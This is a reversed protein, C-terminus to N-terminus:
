NDQNQPSRPLTTRAHPRQSETRALSRRRARATSPSPAIAGRSCGTRARPPPNCSAKKRKSGDSSDIFVYDGPDINVHTRRVRKDFNKKYRAQTKNLRNYAGAITEDLAILIEHQKRSEPEPRDRQSSNQSFPPPPTSPILDFPTTGTTRHVHCSYVHTMRPRTGTGPTRIKKSSAFSCTRSYGTSTNRKATPKHIIHRHTCM